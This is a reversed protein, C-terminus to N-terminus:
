AAALDVDTPLSNLYELMCDGRKPWRRRSRPCIQSPQLQHPIKPITSPAPLIPPLPPPSCHGKRSRRDTGEWWPYGFALQKSNHTTNDPPPYFM